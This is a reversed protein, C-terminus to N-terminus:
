NHRFIQLFNSSCVAYYCYLSCNVRLCCKEKKSKSSNLIQFIKLGMISCSKEQQVRVKYPIKVAV